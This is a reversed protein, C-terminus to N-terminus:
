LRAARGGLHSSQRAAGRITDGSGTDELTVGSEKTFASIWEGSQHMSFKLKAAMVRVALYAESGHM